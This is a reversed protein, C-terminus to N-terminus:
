PNSKVFFFFDSLAPILRNDIPRYLQSHVFPIDSPNIFISIATSRNPSSM